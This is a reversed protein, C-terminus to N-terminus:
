RFSEVVTFSRTIAIRGPLKGRKELGWATGPKGERGSSAACLQDIWCVSSQYISILRSIEHDFPLLRSEHSGQFVPYFISTRCFVKHIRM